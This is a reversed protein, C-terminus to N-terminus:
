GSTWLGSPTVQMNAYGIMKINYKMANKKEQYENEKELKQYKMKKRKREQMPKYTIFSVHTQYNYHRQLLIKSKESAM